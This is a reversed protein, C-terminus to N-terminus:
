VKATLKSQDHSTEVVGSQAIYSNFLPVTPVEIGARLATFLEPHRKAVHNVYREVRAPIVRGVIVFVDGRDFRLSRECFENIERDSSYPTRKYFFKCENRLIFKEADFPIEGDFRAAVHQAVEVMEEDPLTRYPLPYVDFIRSLFALIYPSQTIASIFVRESEFNRRLREDQWSILWLLAIMGQLFGKNQVEPLLGLSCLHVISKDGVHWNNVSGGLGVIAGNSRIFVVGNAEYLPGIKFNSRMATLGQEDDWGRARAAINFIQERVEDLLQPYKFVGNPVVEFEFDRYTGTYSGPFLGNSM